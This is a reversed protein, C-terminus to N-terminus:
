EIPVRKYSDVLMRALKVGYESRQLFPGIDDLAFFAHDDAGWWSKIWQTWSLEGRRHLEVFSQYDNLCDCWRHGERFVPVPPMPLGALDCFELLPLNIGASTPQSIQTWPRPNIEMLRLSGDRRDRKFEVEGIGEYRMSKFFDLSLQWVEDDKCSVTMSGIGFDPPSQRPKRHQFTAVPTGEKNFYGSTVFLDNTPGPIIEQVMVELDSDRARKYGKVLEEPGKAVFGKEKYKMMWTISRYPKVFAPYPCEKAVQRVEEVSEPYFTVPIKIGHEVAFDYQRRKDLITRVMEKDPLAFRYRKALEDRHESILEVFSDKTPILVPEEGLREALDLLYQVPGDPDDKPQPITVETECYKSHFIVDGTEYNAGIVRVGARGLSRVVGLGIASLRLVVAHPADSGVKFARM